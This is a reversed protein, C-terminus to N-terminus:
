YKEVFFDFIFFNEDKVYGWVEKCVYEYMKEIVVEVLCDFLM